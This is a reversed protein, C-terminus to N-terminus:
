DSGIGSAKAREAVTTARSPAAFPRREVIRNVEGALKELARKREQGYDHQDYVGEVGVIAHGLVREAHFRDVGTRMMLSKSTRRLDHMQWQPLSAGLKATIKRVLAKKCPGFGNSPGDSRGPFVYPNGEIRAQSEIIDRAVQPLALIGGNGKERAESAITWVGDNSIDRWKMTAVKECRQGTLLLLKFVAGFTGCTDLIPWITRIEEDSLIRERKRPRSRAMGKVIPNVYENSRTAYWNMIARVIALVLDAQRAGHNDEISDLLKAVDSRKIETFERHGWAPYVYRSLCREIETKSRLGQKEVHRVIWNRAVAEFADPKPPLPAFSSLGAQIRKIVERAQERADAIRLKDTEGLTAWVQNNNQPKTPDRAVVVFSKIGAPTVRVYHGRLEPDPEVYRANRPQLDKIGNDTLTKRRAM